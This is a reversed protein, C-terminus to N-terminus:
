TKIIGTSDDGSTDGGDSGGPNFGAMSPMGPINRPKLEINNKKAFELVKAYHNKLKVLTERLEENEKEIGGLNEAEGDKTTELCQVETDKKERCDTAYKRNKLTRRRQKLKEIMEKSLGKEKLKRNLDKINLSSLEHDSMVSFPGGTIDNASDYDMTLTKDNINHLNDGEAVSGHAVSSYATSLIDKCSNNNLLNNIQHYDDVPQGGSGHLYSGQNHSPPNILSSSIQDFPLHPTPGIGILPDYCDQFSTHQEFEM